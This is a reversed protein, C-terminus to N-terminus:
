SMVIRRRVFKIDYLKRERSDLGREQEFLIRDDYIFWDHARYMQCFSQELIQIHFLCLREPRIRRGKMLTPTPISQEVRSMGISRNLDDMGSFALEQDIRRFFRHFMNLVDFDLQLLSLNDDDGHIPPILDLVCM